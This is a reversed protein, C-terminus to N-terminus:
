KNVTVYDSDQETSFATFVLKIKHGEEVHIVYYCNLNDSYDAHPFNPSTIIGRAETFAILNCAIM